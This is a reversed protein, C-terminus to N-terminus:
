RAHIISPKQGLTKKYKRRQKPSMKGKKSCNFKFDFVNKINDKTPPKAPDKLVVVDARLHMETAGFFAKAWVGKTSKGASKAVNYAENAAERSKEIVKDDIVKGAKDYGVESKVAPDLPPPGKIKKECCKHKKTGLKTCDKGSPKKNWANGKKKNYEKNVEKNCEKAIEQLKTQVDTVATTSQAEAPCVSNDQNGNTLMMDGLRPVNKGEVKVDFSYLAFKAAGMNKNSVIGKLTGAEDGMSRSFKSNKLMIPKGDMKVKKSGKDTDSSKAINPYPIPVPPAPPAPTKCVDPVSTAIGTSSKHVVTRFNVIVTAGM